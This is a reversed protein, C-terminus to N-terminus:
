KIKALSRATKLLYRSTKIELESQISLLVIGALIQQSRVVQGIPLEMRDYLMKFQGWEECISLERSKTIQCELERFM